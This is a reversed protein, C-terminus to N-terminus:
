LHHPKDHHDRRNYNKIIGDRCWESCKMTGSSDTVCYKTDCSWGKNIPIKSTFARM